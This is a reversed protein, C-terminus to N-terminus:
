AQMSFQPASKGISSWHLGHIAKYTVGTVDPRKQGFGGTSRLKSIATNSRFCKM